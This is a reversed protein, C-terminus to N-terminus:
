QQEDTLPVDEQGGVLDAETAVSIPNDTTVPDPLYYSPSPCIRICGVTCTADAAASYLGNGEDEVIYSINEILTQTEGDDGVREQPVFCEWYCETDFGEEDNLQAEKVAAVMECAYRLMELTQDTANSLSDAFIRADEMSLPFDDTFSNEPDMEHTMIDSYPDNQALLPTSLFVSLFPVLGLVLRRFFM